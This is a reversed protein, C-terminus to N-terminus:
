DLATAMIMEFAELATVTEDYAGKAKPHEAQIRRYVEAMPHTPLPSLHGIVKGKM